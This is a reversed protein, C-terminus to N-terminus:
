KLKNLSNKSWATTDFEETGYAAWRMASIDFSIQSNARFFQDYLQFVTLEWVNLLTYGCGLGCIAAAMEGFSFGDKSKMKMNAAQLKAIIEEARKNKPKGYLEQNDGGVFNIQLIIDCANTISDMTLTCPEIFDVFFALVSKIADETILSKAIDDFLEGNKLSYIANLYKYYTDEGVEYIDNLKLAKITGVGAITIPRGTILTSYELKM